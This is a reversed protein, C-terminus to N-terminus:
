ASKEINFKVIPGPITSRDSNYAVVFAVDVAFDFAQAGTRTLHDTAGSAVSSADVVADYTYTGVNIGLGPMEIVDWEHSTGLQTRLIADPEVRTLLGLSGDAIAYGTGHKGSANAINNSFGFRNGAYQLTKDEQNFTGFGEMRRMFSEFGPNGVVDLMYPEYDNSRFTPKLDQLIYSDRRDTVVESLVNSAFTHGGVVSGIVQTKATDLATVAAVDLAAKMKVLIAEFKKNFDMQYSIDNNFHQAPYMLFGCAYTAWTVTYFASTNEDASITIPRTTRITVDKYNIAPIKLSRGMSMMARQELEPTVFSANGMTQQQFANFAGAETIRFEFKDFNPAAVRYNQALTAVLSM